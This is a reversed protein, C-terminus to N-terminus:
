IYVQLLRTIYTILRENDLAIYVVKRLYIRNSCACRQTKSWLMYDGSLLIFRPQCMSLNTYLFYCLNLQKVRIRSSIFTNGTRATYGPELSVLKLFPLHLNNWKFIPLNFNLMFILMEPTVM